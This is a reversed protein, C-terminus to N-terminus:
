QPGGTVDYAPNRPCGRGHGCGAMLREFADGTCTCARGGQPAQDCDPCTTPAEKGARHAGIEVQLSLPYAQRKVVDPWQARAYDLAAQLEHHSFGQVYFGSNSAGRRDGSRDWWVFALWLPTGGACWHVRGDPDDPVKRNRLLGSDMLDISWPLTPFESTDITKRTGGCLFHGYGEVYGFYLALKTEAIPM